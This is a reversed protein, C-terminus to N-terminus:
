LVFFVVGDGYPHWRQCPGDTHACPRVKLSLDVLLQGDPSRFRQSMAGSRIGAPDLDWNVSVFEAQSSEDCTGVRAVFTLKASTPSGLVVPMPATGTAAGATSSSICADAVPAPLDVIPIGDIKPQFFGAADRGGSSFERGDASSVQYSIDARGFVADTFGRGSSAEYQVGDVDRATATVSYATAPCLPVDVEFVTSPAEDFDLTFGDVCDGPGDREVTVKEWTLPEDSAFTVTRVFEVRDQNFRLQEGNPDVEITPRNRYQGFRTNEM